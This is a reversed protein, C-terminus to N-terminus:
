YIGWNASLCGDTARKPEQLERPSGSPKPSNPPKPLSPIVTTYVRTLKMHNGSKNLCNGDVTATIIWSFSSVVVNQTGSWPWTATGIAQLMRWAPSSKFFKCIWCNEDTAHTTYIAMGRGGWSPATDPVQRLVSCVPRWKNRWTVLVGPLTMFLGDVWGCEGALALCSWVLLCGLARLFDDTTLQNSLLHKVVSLANATWWFISELVDPFGRSIRQFHHMHRGLLGLFSMMRIWVNFAFRNSGNSTRKCHNKNTRENSSEFSRTGKLLATWYPRDSVWQVSNCVVTFHKTVHHCGFASATSTRPCLIIM